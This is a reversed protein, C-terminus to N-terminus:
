LGVKKKVWVIVVVFMWTGVKEVLEVVVGQRRGKRKEGQVM